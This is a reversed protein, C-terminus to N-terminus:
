VALLFPQTLRKPDLCAKAMLLVPIKVLSLHPPLSDAVLYMDPFLPHIENIYMLM